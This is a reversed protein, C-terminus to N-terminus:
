SGLPLNNNRNENTFSYNFSNLDDRYLRSVTDISAPSYYEIFSQRRNSSNVMQKDDILKIFELTNLENHLDEFRLLRDVIINKSGDMVSRFQPVFFREDLNDELIGSQIFEDFKKFQHMKEIIAALKRNKPVANKKNLDQLYSYISVVRDFPNRVIAFKFLQGFEKPFIRKLEEATSHKLMLYPSNSLNGSLKDFGMKRRRLNFYTTLLSRGTVRIERDISIDKYTANRSLLQTVYMGAAKSIHIFAFRRQFSIYM